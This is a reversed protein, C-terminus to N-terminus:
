IKKNPPETNKEDTKEKNDAYILSIINDLNKHIKGHTDKKIQHTSLLSTVFSLKVKLSNGEPTETSNTACLEEVASNEIEELIDSEKKSQITVSSNQTMHVAHIHKCINTSIVSDSCTCTYSHICISCIRCIMQCYHDSDFFNKQVKYKIKTNTSSEVSWEFDVKKVNQIVESTKRHSKHIDSSKASTQGKILKTHRDFTKDKVFNLLHSICIDLRKNITGHMYVHKLVKHFAELHMNTNIGASIRYCYAWQKCRNAYNSKFYAGFDKVDDDEDCEIM